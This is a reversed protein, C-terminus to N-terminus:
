FRRKIYGYCLDLTKNFHTPCTVYQYFHTLTSRLKCQNFDGLIFVPADPCLSQLRETSQRIVHAANKINAKPHIYVVSIFIQPFERPLYFPRVLVSLLETDPTCTRDRITINNCWRRNVYLCVGGGHSKGTVDSDRDTRLPIGFGDLHLDSDPDNNSLWNETLALVCTNRYQSLHLVNAKLEDTKNRLSQVNALIMTPLPLRNLKQRRLRLRVGGRKGRKRTKAHKFSRNHRYILNNELHQILLDSLPVPTNYQLLM